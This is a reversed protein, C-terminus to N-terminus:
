SSVGTGLSLVPLLALCLPCLLSKGGTFSVGGKGNDKDAGGKRVSRDKGGRPSDPEHGAPPAPARRFRVHPHTASHCAPSHTCSVMCVIPM